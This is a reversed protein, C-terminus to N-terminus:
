ELKDVVNLEYHTITEQDSKFLFFGKFLKNSLMYQFWFKDDKWMKDFPIEDYDFWQPRIEETESIEGSYDDACFVHTAMIDNM